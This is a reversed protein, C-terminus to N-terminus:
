VMGGLVCVGFVVWGCVCLRVCVHAVESSKAKTTWPRRPQIGRDICVCGGGGGGKRIWITARGLGGGGGGGRGMVRGMGGGVVGWGGGLRLRRRGGRGGLRLIRCTGGRGGTGWGGMGRGMVVGAGRGCVM